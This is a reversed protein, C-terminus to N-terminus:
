HLYLQVGCDLDTINIKGPHKGSQILKSESIQGLTTTDVPVHSFTVTNNELRYLAARQHPNEGYRLGQPEQRNTTQWRMKEYRLVERTGDAAILALEVQEPLEEQQVCHYVSSSSPSGESM